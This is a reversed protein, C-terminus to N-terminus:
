AIFLNASFPNRQSNMERIGICPIIFKFTSGKFVNNEVWIKGGMLEVIGKSLTLGLGVGSELKKSSEEVREFSDFIQKFKDKLIGKGSDTVFFTIKGEEEDLHYGFEIIGRETYKFANGLLNSIVQNLRFQDANIKFNDNKVGLNLLLAIQHRENRHRDINFYHYIDTLVQNIQCEENMIKLQGTEILSVDIMAEVVSLLRSSSQNIHDMYEERKTHSLQHDNLLSSFGLIANMPTRLEHSINSLFRTKLQDTKDKNEKDNEKVQLELDKIRKELKKIYVLLDEYTRTNIM